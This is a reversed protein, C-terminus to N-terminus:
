DYARWLECFELAIAETFIRERTNQMKGAVLVSNEAKKCEIDVKEGQYIFNKLEKMEM